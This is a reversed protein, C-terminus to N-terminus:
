LLELAQSLDKHGFTMCIWGLKACIRLLQLLAVRATVGMEKGFCSLNLGNREVVADGVFTVCFICPSKLMFFNGARVTTVKSEM